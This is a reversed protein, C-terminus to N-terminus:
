LKAILQQLDRRYVMDVYNEWEEESWSHNKMTASQIKGMFPRRITEYKTFALSIAKEDDLANNNVLNAILTSILAADEFGQNAGQAAFPPMGHAADGVLVLRGNSWIPQSDVPINTPHIYYPRHFLGEPTSLAVLKIVSPPFDAKELINVGLSIIEASSKNQLSDLSLPTHLLYGLTNDQKNILIIRPKEVVDSDELLTMVPDGQFYKAELQQVIEDPVNDIQFCGIAAFGCYSPKAWQSLDSNAYLVQRITSNIGDAAVVLKARFKKIASEQTGLEDQSKISESKPITWHAFPNTTEARDCICAIEVYGNHNVADICRHNAQVIESPLINRLTTQLDYWSISVRGEGYLSLWTAFDLPTSHIIKGQLNKWNWFRKPPSKEETVQSNNDDSNKPNLAQVLKLGTEKIQQYAREDIYKIAKLGNPLIDVIQGVQRFSRTQDIVLINKIGRQYLAIATALGVPGAGVILVDYIGEAVLYDRDVNM